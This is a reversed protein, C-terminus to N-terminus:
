VRKHKEKNEIDEIAKLIAFKFTPSVLTSILEDDDNYLLYLGLVELINKKMGKFSANAKPIDFNGTQSEFNNLIVMEDKEPKGTQKNIFDVGEEMCCRIWAIKLIQDVLMKEYDM